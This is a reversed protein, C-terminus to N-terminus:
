GRARIFKQISRGSKGQVDLVYMGEPIDNLSLSFSRGRFTAEKILRGQLDYLRVQKLDQGAPHNSQLEIFDFAPNPFLEWSETALFETGSVESINWGIDELMALVIPGPENEVEGPSIYPTMLSNDSNNYTNEDLHTMSSGFQYNGPAFLKVQTDNNAAVALPATSYVNNSTFAQELEASPNNFMNPDALFDGNSNVTYTDFIGPKGDLEPFPFSPGLPFFDAATIEGFSGMMDEVKALSAIGLGHGLEHLFVSVFDFQFESPNGDTGFYWNGSINIYIDMDNHDPQLDEGALANALCAPYWVDAVPANAFNMDGNPLTLGLFQGAGLEGLVVRVKIPVDSQLYQEWIDGCYEIADYQENTAGIIEFSFTANQAKLLFPSLAISLLLLYKKM